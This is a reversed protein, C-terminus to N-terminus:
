KAGHTATEIQQIFRAADLDDKYGNWEKLVKGEADLLVTYPFNGKSNYKDALQENEAQKERPLQNKKLRPFDAHFVVLHDTSYQQFSEKELIQKEMKICPICWDSGSFVLLVNKGSDKASSLTQAFTGTQAMATASVAILLTAIVFLRKMFRSIIFNIGQKTLLSNIALNYVSAPSQM